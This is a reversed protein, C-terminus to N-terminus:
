SHGWKAVVVHGVVDQGMDRRLVGPELQLVTFGAGALTARVYDERHSYRGNPNLRHSADSGAPEAELTFVLVGDPTLTVQAAAFAAELEGFYVLTDASLVVDYSSPHARMFTVLEGVHLEDYVQRARAKDLMGPSLDVGVLQRASARLLPGCLGTGVGADLIALRREGLRVFKGLAACALQPAAYGLNALTADFDGSMRDFLKTVYADDARAPAQQTFAAVMHRPIPNDPDADHWRQFAASAEQYRHLHMNMVAISEHADAAKPNLAVAHQFADIAEERKQLRRLVIGLNFWATFFDPRSEVARRYAYEAAPLKGISSVINGLSNWANADRPAFSVARTILAVAEENRQQRHRLVGLYHLADVDDPKAALLQLYISEAERLRGAQFHALAEVKTAMM